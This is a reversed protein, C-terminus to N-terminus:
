MLGKPVSVQIIQFLKTLVVAASARAGHIVLGDTVMINVVWLLYSRTKSSSLDWCVVHIDWHQSSVSFTLINTNRLIFEVCCHNFHVPFLFIAEFLTLLWCSSLCLKQEILDSVVTNWLSPFNWQLQFLEFKLVQTTCNVLTFSQPALTTGGNSIVSSLWWQNLAQHGKPIYVNDSFYHSGM